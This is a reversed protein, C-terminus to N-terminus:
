QCYHPPDNLQGEIKNAVARVAVYEEDEDDFEAIEQLKANVFSILTQWDHETLIVTTDM